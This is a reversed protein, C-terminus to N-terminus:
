QGWLNQPYDGSSIRSIIEEKVFSKDKKHTVGVWKEHSHLVSVKVRNEQILQDIASSLYFEAKTDSIHEDLFKIFLQELHDFIYPTFGWLNTSVLESGKLTLWENNSSLFKANDGDKEVHTREVIRTLYHNADVECIGRSVTGHDPLTNHLDYGVLCFRSEKGIEKQGDNSNWLQKMLQAIMQYSKPGYFDDSNIVCFPEKVVDRCALVAHGTGWPKKRKKATTHPAPLSFLDQYVFETNIKSDLRTIYDNFLGEMEKQIVFVVRNFDARLADYISYDILFEGNPGVSEVQKHGGYRRGLGAALIILTPNM